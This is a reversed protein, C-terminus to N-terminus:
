LVLDNWKPIINSIPCGTDSQCFPVGCDMCRSAQVKLEPETLRTSLEAWDKVRKRPNRYPEGLRKYKMFGRVKDLTEVKKKGAEADVMSDELDVVPPEPKAPKSSPVEKVGEVNVKSKDEEPTFGDTKADFGHMKQRKQEMAKAADAELVAKFDLPMVRVFRPLIHNFDQLVRKALDSGTWHQHEEIIM